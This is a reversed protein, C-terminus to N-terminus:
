AVEHGMAAELLEFWSQRDLQVNMAEGFLKIREISNSGMVPLIAAPHRLLWAVAMSSPAVGHMAAMEKLKIGLPSQSDQLLQGGALPSWAMPAIKHQQLYALDGNTLATNEALSIEIQNAVLRNNMRSQLLDMDWPRFNSVGLAKVKGSAILGDLAEGTEDADMLPDPRHILLLDIQEIAMEQLSRDVAQNIAPQSSDYYKVRKDAHMGIPAVIDCKTIIEMQGRLAPAQKLAAGLLGEATYAGYIDAQDFTSIGQELCAEIKAQIHKPSTDPDDGLRWMGYIIRSVSLSESAGTNGLIIKEM